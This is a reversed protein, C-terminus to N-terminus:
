CFKVTFIFNRWESLTTSHGLESNWHEPKEKRRSKEEWQSAGDPLNFQSARLNPPTRPQPQRLVPTLPPWAMAFLNGKAPFPKQSPTSQGTLASTEERTQSRCHPIPEVHAQGIPLSATVSSRASQLVSKKTYSEISRALRFHSEIVM